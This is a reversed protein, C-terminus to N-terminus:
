NFMAELTEDNIVSDSGDNWPNDKDEDTDKIVEEDEDAVSLVSIDYRDSVNLKAEDTEEDRVFKVGNFILESIKNGRITLEKKVDEKTTLGLDILEQVEPTLKIDGTAQDYGENVTINLAIERVVDHSKIKFLNDLIKLRVDINDENATFVIQQPLALTDKVEQGNERSVYQPVYAEIITRGDEKLEKTARSSISDKEILYTQEVSFEHEHAQVEEGKKTYGENLSINKIKFRRQVEDNYRSYEVRGSVFVEQGKKLFKEMYEAADIGSLFRKHILKGNDDKELRVNIFSQPAVNDLINKKDRFEWKIDIMGEDAKKSFRKLIPKSPQYGDMLQLYVQRGDGLKLPFNVNVYKYGTKESTQVGNFTDDNISVEGWARFMAFGQKLETELKAKTKTAM